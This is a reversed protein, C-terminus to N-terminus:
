ISGQLINVNHKLVSRSIQLSKELSLFLFIFESFDKVMYNTTATTAIDYLLKVLRPQQFRHWFINRM